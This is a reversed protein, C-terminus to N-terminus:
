WPTALYDYLMQGWDTRPFDYGLEPDLGCGDSATDELLNPPCRNHFTWALHPIDLEQCLAWLARIDDETSYNSPGYEGVLIPLTAKPQRLMGDFDEQPNYAHVEYAVNSRDLPNEVFYDLYRAWQQPAQVVVIHEVSGTQAEVARIADIASLYREALEPNRDEPGHPENTLGFLVKEDDRFADALAEYVLNTAETPWESDYDSNNEKMSPDTFLTVMVYVGPKSTMHTVTNQIDALYGPDEVVSRWQLRFGGDETFSMLNFRVFNAQWNDLLEDSWRNLGEPDPELWTCADCSRTDNLNAGRGRFPEGNPLLIQNGDVHLAEGGTPGPGPGPGAGGGGGPDSDGGVGPDTDDDSADDDVPVDDDATDDDGADDDTADDDSPVETDDSADDDSADDDLAGDDDAAGDDDDNPLDDDPDDGTAPGDDDSGDDDSSPADEGTDDDATNADDDTGDLPADSGSTEEGCGSGLLVALLLGLSGSRM